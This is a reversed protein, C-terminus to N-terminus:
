ASAIHSLAPDHHFAYLITGTTRHHYSHDAQPEEGPPRSQRHRPNDIDEVVTRHAIPYGQIRRSQLLGNLRAGLLFAPGHQDRRTDKAGPRNLKRAMDRKLKLGPRHQPGALRNRVM